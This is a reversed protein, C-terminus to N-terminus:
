NMYVLSDLTRNYFYSIFIRLRGLQSKNTGTDGGPFRSDQRFVNEQKEEAQTLVEYITVVM